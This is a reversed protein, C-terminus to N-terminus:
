FSWLFIPINRKAYDTVLDGRMPIDPGHRFVSMFLFSLAELQLRCSSANDHRSLPTVVAFFLPFLLLALNIKLMNLQFISRCGNFFVPMFGTINPSFTGQTEKETEKGNGGWKVVLRSAFSFVHKEAQSSVHRKIRKTPQL